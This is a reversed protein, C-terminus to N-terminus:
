MTQLLKQLNVQATLLDLLAGIYAGQASILNNNITTLDTSSVTGLQYKQMTKDFIRTSVDVNKKQLEYTEIASNLLFRLQREQIRLGYAADDRNLEATKLDIKAQTLKSYREGSSFIPIALTAGVTNPPTMNFGEPKGFYSRDTHQAFLALTPTHEWVKLAQQKQSLKVNQNLLMMTYNSDIDFPTAATAYADNATLFDTIGDTLDLETKSSVGLILRLSNYALEINRETKKVENAILGVQVDLQDVATQEVVGVEYMKKTTEYMKQVNEKSSEMLKKSQEAVLVTLYATTVNAKVSLDSLNLSLKSMTIALNSLQVGVVQMGTFAMTAQVSLDGYPNMAIETGGSGGMLAGVTQAAIMVINDHAPDGTLVSSLDASNSSGLNLEASYGLFNTYGLKADVHPLMSAIAQWKAAEAKQVALESVKLSRNHQLAYNKAQSLSLNLKEQAFSSVSLALSCTLLLVIKKGKM